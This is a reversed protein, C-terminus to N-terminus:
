IMGESRQLVRSQGGEGRELLSELRLRIEGIRAESVGLFYRSSVTLRDLAKTDINLGALEDLSEFAGTERAALIAEVRGAELEPDLSALVAPTATNVNIATTAPLASVHPKLQQFAEANVGEVLRLESISRLPRNAAQYPAEKGLYVADEAGRPRARTDADIWDVIRDALGPDLELYRLLRQVRGMAVADVKGEDDVLNNLNLRGQLDEIHGGISGGTVPVPPLETAWAEDLGDYDTERADRDLITRAWAEAGLAYQWAQNAHLVNGTRQIDVQQRTALGVAATTALAVVLMATILAVGRQTRRAMM